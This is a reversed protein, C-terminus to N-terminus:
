RHPAARLSTGVVAQNANTELTRSEILRRSADPRRELMRIRAEFATVKNTSERRTWTQSVPHGDLAMKTNSLLYGRCLVRSPYNSLPVSSVIVVHKDPSEWRAPIVGTDPLYLAQGNTGLALADSTHEYDGHWVGIVSDVTVEIMPAVVERQAARDTQSQLALRDPAIATVNLQNSGLTLVNDSLTYPMCTPERDLRSAQHITLIGNTGFRYRHQFGDDWWERNELLGGSFVTLASLWALAMVTITRMNKM